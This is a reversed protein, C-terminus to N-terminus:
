MNNIKMTDPHLWVRKFNAHGIYRYEKVDYERMKFLETKLCEDHWQM